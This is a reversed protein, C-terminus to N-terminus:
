REGSVHKLMEIFAESANMTVNFDKPVLDAVVKVYAEPKEERLRVITSEGHKEFDASLLDIFTESLKQRSGRPRGKPNGSVGKQFPRGRVKKATSAGSPTSM